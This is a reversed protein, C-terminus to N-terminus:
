RFQAETEQSSDLFCAAREQVNLKQGYSFALGKGRM